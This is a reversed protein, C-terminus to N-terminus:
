AFVMPSPMVRNQLPCSASTAKRLSNTSRRPAKRGGSAITVRGLASTAQAVSAVSKRMSSGSMTTSGALASCTLSNTLSALSNFNASIGRPPADPSVPPETGMRRRETM